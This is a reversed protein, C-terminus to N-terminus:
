MHVNESGWSSGLLEVPGKSFRIWSALNNGYTAPSVPKTLTEISSVSGFCGLALVTDGFTILTFDIRPQKMGALETWQGLPRTAFFVNKLKWTYGTWRRRHNPGSLPLNRSTLMCNEHPCNGALLGRHGSLDGEGTQERRASSSLLLSTSHLQGVM